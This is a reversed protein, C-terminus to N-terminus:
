LRRPVSEKNLPGLLPPTPRLPSLHPELSLVILLLLPRYGTLALPPFAVSLFLVDLLIRALCVQFSKQQRCGLPLHGPHPHPIRSAKLPSPNKSLQGLPSRALLPSLSGLVSGLTLAQNCM